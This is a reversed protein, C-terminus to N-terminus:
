PHQQLAGTLTESFQIQAQLENQPFPVSGGFNGQHVTEDHREM